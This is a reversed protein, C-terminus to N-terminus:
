SVPQLGMAPRDVVVLARARLGDRRLLGLEELRRVHHSATSKSSLGLAAAIEGLSPPYGRDRTHEVILALTREQQPSPVESRTKAM